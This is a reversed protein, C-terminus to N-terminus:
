SAADCSEQRLYQRCEGDTLTRTVEDRALEVLDDLDVAWVRAVGDGGLLGSTDRWRAFSDLRAGSALFSADRDAADWEDAATRLRQHLRLDDRAADIWGRLRRWERLLAEHAVEVTPARSEPDRDFTLPRAGGFAALVAPMADPALAQVEAVEARRRTDGAGEGPTILRLFLQRAAERGDAPLRALEAEARRVLAGAIGGAGRYDDTTLRGDARRDFVETLAYQLLPLGAPAAAVDAVVHAVLDRDVAVGVREAPGRVARDLEAATLPVVAETRARVLEAIEPSGLPRDYYDARLTVVV